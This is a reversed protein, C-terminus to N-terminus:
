WSLVVIYSLWLNINSQIIMYIIETGSVPLGIKYIKFKVNRTQSM